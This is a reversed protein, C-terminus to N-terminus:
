EEVLLILLPVIRLRLMDPHLRHAVVRAFDVKDRDARRESPNCSYSKYLIYGM